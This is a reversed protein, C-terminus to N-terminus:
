GPDLFLGAGSRELLFKIAKKQYNRPTWRVPKSGSPGGHEAAMFSGSLPPSKKGLRRPIISASCRISRESGATPLHRKVAAGTCRIEKEQSKLPSSDAGRRPGTSLGLERVLPTSSTRGTPGLGCTGRISASGDIAPTASSCARRCPDLDSSGSFSTFANIYVTSRGFGASGDTVTAL